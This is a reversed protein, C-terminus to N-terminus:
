ENELVEGATGLADKISKTPNGTSPDILSGSEGDEGLLDEFYEVHGDVFAIHGGDGLWPSTDSWEGNTEDVGKTWILPTTSANANPSINAGMAYSIAQTASNWAAVPSDENDLIIKPLEDLM